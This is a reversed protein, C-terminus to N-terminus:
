AESQFSVLLQDIEEKVFQVLSHIYPKSFDFSLGAAQYVEKIPKSYGMSLAIKFREISQDPNERYQKWFEIAGLQAMGYEIYPHTYIWHQFQDICAIWPLINLIRSLQWLKARQLDEKSEFFLNWHEMSILETTMAALEAIESPVRNLRFETSMFSHIAHGCEHLFTVVDQITNTANMFIFPVSTMPLPMNYGGPRKGTRAELDLHDIDKMSHIFDGFMPDIATLCNISKHILDETDEFPKINLNNLLDINLDWPRLQELGLIEKRTNQLQRIIPLVESAISEQFKLCDEVTYDFRGLEKFKYDRYNTFGANTAVKDRLHILNDFLLNFDETNELQRNHIKLYVEKRINQDSHYLFKSAQTINYKKHEIDVFMQTFLKGHEKSTVKLTSHIDINEEKYLHVKNKIDRLYVQYTIPDLDKLFPCALFKLNLEHELHCIKPQIEQIIYHYAEAIRDNQSDCTLKIYRWSIEEAIVDHIESKDFIWQELEEVSLISRNLLEKFYPKLRSWVTVKFENPLFARVRPSPVSLTGM